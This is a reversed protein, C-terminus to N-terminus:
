NGSSEMPFAPSPIVPKVRIRCGQPGDDAWAKGCVLQIVKSDDEFLIGSLGDLVARALKDIDPKQTHPGPAWDKMIRANRGTGFHKKPRQFFFDLSVDVAGLIMKCQGAALRISARWDKLPQGASEMVVAQKSHKHVIARKSGQPKPTGPIFLCATGNPGQEVQATM